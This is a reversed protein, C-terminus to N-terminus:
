PNFTQTFRSMFLLFDGFIQFVAHSNILAVQMTTGIQLHQFFGTSSFYCMSKSMTLEQQCQWHIQQTLDMIIRLYLVKKQGTRAM